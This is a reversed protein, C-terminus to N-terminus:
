CCVVQILLHHIDNTIYILVYSPENYKKTSEWSGSVIVRRIEESNNADIVGIKKHM